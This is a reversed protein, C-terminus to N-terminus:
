WCYFWRYVKIREEADNIVIKIKKVQDILINEFKGEINAPSKSSMHLILAKSCYFILMLALGFIRYQLRSSRKLHIRKHTPFAENTVSEASHMKLQFVFVFECFICGLTVLKTRFLLIWDRNEILIFLQPM